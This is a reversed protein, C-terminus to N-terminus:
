REKKVFTVTDRDLEVLFSGSVNLRQISEMNVSLIELLTTTAINGLNVKILKAPTNGILFSNRFDADKTIVIMDNEDAYLCIDQDKTNWKDLMENVHTAQFGASRLYQAIKYSIHVDLLFKM